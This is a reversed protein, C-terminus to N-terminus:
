LLGSSGAGEVLMAEQCGYMEGLWEQGVTTAQSMVALEKGKRRNLFLLRNEKEKVTPQRTSCKWFISPSPLSM